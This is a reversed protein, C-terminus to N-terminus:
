RGGIKVWGRGLGVVHGLVSPVYDGEESVVDGEACRGFGGKLDRFPNMHVLNSSDGTNLYDDDTLTFARLFRYPRDLKVYLLRTFYHLFISERITPQHSPTSSIRKM